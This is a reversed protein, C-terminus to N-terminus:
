SNKWYVFYIVKAFLAIAIPHEQIPPPLVNSNLFSSSSPCPSAM